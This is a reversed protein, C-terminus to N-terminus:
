RCWSMQAGHAEPDLKLRPLTSNTCLLLHLACGGAVEVLRYASSKCCCSLSFLSLTAMLVLHDMGCPAGTRLNKWKFRTGLEADRWCAGVHDEYIILLISSSASVTKVSFMGITSGWAGAVTDIKWAPGAGKDQRSPHPSHGKLCGRSRSRRVIM